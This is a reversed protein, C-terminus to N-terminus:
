IQIWYISTMLWWMYIAVIRHAMLELTKKVDASEFLRDEMVNVPVQVIYSLNEM